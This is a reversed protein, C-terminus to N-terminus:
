ALWGSSNMTLIFAVCITVPPVTWAVMVLVRFLSMVAVVLVLRHKRPSRHGITTRGRGGGIWSVCGCGVCRGVGCM